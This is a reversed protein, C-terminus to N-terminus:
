VGAPEDGRGDPGAAPTLEGARQLERVLPEVIVGTEGARVNKLPLLIALRQPPSLAELDQRLRKRYAHALRGAVSGGVFIGVLATGPLALLLNGWLPCSPD